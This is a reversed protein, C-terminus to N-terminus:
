GTWISYPPFEIMKLRFVIIFLPRSFCKQFGVMRLPKKMFCKKSWPFTSKDQTGFIWKIHFGNSGIGGLFNVYYNMRLWPSFLLDQGRRTQIYDTVLISLLDIGSCPGPMLIHLINFWIWSIYIWYAPLLFRLLFLFIKGKTWFIELTRWQMANDPWPM